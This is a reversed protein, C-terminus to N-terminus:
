AVGYKPKNLKTPDLTYARVTFHTNLKRSLFESMSIPWLSLTYEEDKLKKASEVTQKAATRTQIYEKFFPEIKKPEFRLRIGLIGGEWQLTPILHSVYHIKEPPVNLWIDISPLVDTWERINPENLDPKNAFNEWRTGIKNIAGWNSLTFDNTTFRNQDVLFHGLAVMASTKGSNNAGVFVTTNEALDIRVSKLKRFNQIELFNIQM